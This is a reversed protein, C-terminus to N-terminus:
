PQYDLVGFTRVRGVCSSSDPPLHLRFPRQVHQRDPASPSSDEGSGQNGGEGAVDVLVASGDSCARRGAQIPANALGHRRQQVRGSIENSRVKAQRPDCGVTTVTIAGNTTSTSM